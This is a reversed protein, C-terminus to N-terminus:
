CIRRGGWDFYMSLEHFQFSVMGLSKLWQMGLMINTGALDILFPDVLLTIDNMM